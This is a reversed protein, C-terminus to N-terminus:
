KGIMIDGFVDSCLKFQKNFEGVKGTLTKNVLSVMYKIGDNFSNLNKNQSCEIDIKSIKDRNQQYLMSLLNYYDSNSDKAYAIVLGSCAQLNMDSAKM